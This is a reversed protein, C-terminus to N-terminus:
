NGQQPMTGLIGKISFGQVFQAAQGSALDRLTFAAEYDGDLLAPTTLNMEISFEAVRGSVTQSVSAFDQMSALVRGNAHRIDVDVAFSVSLNDDSGEYSFGALLASITLAEGSRLIATQQPEGDILLTTEVIKFQQLGWLADAAEQMREMAETMNGQRALAEAERALESPSAAMATSASGISIVLLAIRLVESFPAYFNRCYM